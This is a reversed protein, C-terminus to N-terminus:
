RPDSISQGDRGDPDSQDCQGLAVTSSSETSVTGLMLGAATISTTAAGQTLGVVNPVAVTAALRLASAASPLPKRLSIHREFRQRHLCATGTLPGTNQPTSASARAASQARLWRFRAQAIPIRNEIFNGGLNLALSGTLPQNGVNQVTVLLPSDASTSGVNTIAFNLSPSLSRNIELVQNSNPDTGRDPLFIDGKADVAVGYALVQSM